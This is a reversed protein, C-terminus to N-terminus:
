AMDCRGPHESGVSPPDPFELGDARLQRAPVALGPASQAADARHAAGSIRLGGGFLVHLAKTDIPHGGLPM